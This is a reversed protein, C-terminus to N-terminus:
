LEFAAVYQDIRPYRKSRSHMDVHAAKIYVNTELWPRSLRHRDRKGGHEVRLKLNRPRLYPATTIFAM